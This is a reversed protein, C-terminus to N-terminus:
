PFVLVCEKIKEKFDKRLNDLREKKARASNGGHLAGGRGSADDLREDVYEWIRFSWLLEVKEKTTDWLSPEGIVFRPGLFFREPVGCEILTKNIKDIFKYIKEPIERDDRKGTESMERRLMYRYITTLPSYYKDEDYKFKYQFFRQVLATDLKTKVNSDVQNM